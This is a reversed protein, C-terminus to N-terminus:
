NHDVVSEPAAGPIDFPLTIADPPKSAPGGGPVEFARGIRNGAPDELTTLVVLAHSGAQWPDRPTFLWRTEGADVLIAGHLARGEFAVGLASHLLGHDLAAPFTVRLSDRSGATPPQIRWESLDIPRENPPGVRFARRFDSALPRGQGDPWTRAIVLTYRRGPHLARGMEVNPLIGRKVRGPDFLVTLRTADQNWLDTDLPLFPDEVERGAEDLIRVHQLAGRRAM